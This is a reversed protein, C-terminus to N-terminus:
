DEDPLLDAPTVGLAKALKGLTRPHPNARVGSEIQAVTSQGIEAEAALQEQTWAKGRRLRKVKDKTAAMEALM